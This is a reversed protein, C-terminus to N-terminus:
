HVIFSLDFVEGEGGGVWGGVWGGFGGVWRDVCLCFYFFTMSPPRTTPSTERLWKLSMNTKKHEPLSPLPVGKSCVSFLSFKFKRVPSRRRANM